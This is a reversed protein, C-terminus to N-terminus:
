TKRRTKRDSSKHSSNNSSIESIEDRPKRKITKEKRNKKTSRKGKSSESTADDAKHKKSTKKSSKKTIESIDDPIYPVDSTLDKDSVTRVGQYVDAFTTLTKMSFSRQNFTEKKTIRSCAGSIISEYLPVDPISSVFTSLMRAFSRVEVLLIGNRIPMASSYIDVNNYKLWDHVKEIKEEPVDETLELEELPDEFYELYSILSYHPDGYNKNAKDLVNKKYKFANKRVFSNDEVLFEDLVKQNVILRQIIDIVNTETTNPFYMRVLRKLEMYLAYNCHRSNIFLTDKLYKKNDSNSKVSPDQLYNNYYQYLKFLFLFICSKISKFLEPEREESFEEKVSVSEPEKMETTTETKEPPMKNYEDFLREICMDLNDMVEIREVSLKTYDGFTRVTDRVLEKCIDVLDESKCAFTMQPVVCIDELFHEEDIFHTQLYYLNSEPYRFLKRTEPDPVKPRVWSIGPLSRELSGTGELVLKSFHLQLNRIVNVFTDMIINEGMQPNYYTFIWETGSFMGCDKQGSMEFHIKYENGSVDFENTPHLVFTYLENKFDKALEFVDDEFGEMDDEDDITVGPNATRLGTLINEKENNECRETLYNTLPTDTMDNTVLFNSNVDVTPNELHIGETSYIDYEIRENRRLHYEDDTPDETPPTEQIKKYDNTNVDTNLLINTNPLLTLKSISSTELEYGISLIKSFVEHKLDGGKKTSM